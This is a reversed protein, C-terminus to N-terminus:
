LWRLTAAELCHHLVGDRVRGVRGCATGSGDGHGLECGCGELRAGHGRKGGICVGLAGTNWFLCTHGTEGVVTVWVGWGGWGGRKHGLALEYGSSSVWIAVATHAGRGWRQLGTVSSFM